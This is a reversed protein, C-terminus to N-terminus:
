MVKLSFINLTPFNGIEHLKVFSWSKPVWAYSVIHPNVKRRLGNLKLWRLMPFIEKKQKERGRRKSRERRERRNEKM